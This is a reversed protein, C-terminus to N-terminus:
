FEDDVNLLLGRMEDDSACREGTADDVSGWGALIIGAIIESYSRRAPLPKVAFELMDQKLLMYLERSPTRAAWLFGSWAADRDEVDDSHLMPLLHQGTWKPDIAYFWDLNRFLLVLAHRRLDRPLALLAEVHRLWEQPFGQNRDLKDKRPDNFLAEAIKGTPSNIAEMTWDPERSGRVIGSRGEDPRQRLVNALKAFVRDFVSRNNASLSASADRFWDAVPRVITALKEDPYSALRESILRFRGPNEPPELEQSPPAM